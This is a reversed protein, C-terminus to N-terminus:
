DITVAATFPNKEGGPKTPAFPPLGGDGVVYDFRFNVNATGSNGNVNVRFRCNGSAQMNDGLYNTPFTWHWFYSTPINAHNDSTGTFAGNRFQWSTCTMPSTSIGVLYASLRFSLAVPNGNGYSVQATFTGNSDTAEFYPDNISFIKSGYDGAADAPAALGIATALVGLAVVSLRRTRASKTTGHIANM